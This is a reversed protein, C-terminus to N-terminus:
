NENICDMEMRPYQQEQNKVSRINLSGIINKISDSLTHDHKLNNYHKILQLPTVKKLNQCDANFSFRSTHIRTPFMPPSIHNINSKMM